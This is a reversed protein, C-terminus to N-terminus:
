RGVESCPGADAAVAAKWSGNARDKKLGFFVGLFTALCALLLVALAVIIIKKAMKFRRSGLLKDPSSFIGIYIYFMQMQWKVKFFFAPSIQIWDNNFLTECILDYWNNDHNM